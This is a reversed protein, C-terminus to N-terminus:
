SPPRVFFNTAIRFTQLRSLPRYKSAFGTEQAWIVADNFQRFPNRFHSLDRNMSILPRLFSANTRWAAADSKWSIQQWQRFRKLTRFNGSFEERKIQGRSAGILGRDRCNWREKPIIYSVSIGNFVGNGNAIGRSEVKLVNSNWCFNKLLRKM